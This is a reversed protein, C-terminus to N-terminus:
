PLSTVPSSTEEPQVLFSLSALAQTLHNELDEVLPELNETQRSLLAAELSQASTFLAAAELIAANGKLTHALRLAQAMDGDKILRRLRTGAEPYKRAFVTLLRQLLRPNDDCRALAAPIDFPPLESPLAPQSADDSPEISVSAPSRNATARVAIEAAQREAEAKQGRTVPMWAVLTRVLANLDIPKTLHDNMGVALSKERDGVMAHATMAIIPIGTHEENSRSLKQAEIERIRSTAEYGDMEPMQVDMLILDFAEETVYQVAERGNVAIKLSIGLGALLERALDRNLANDEVLLVNRGTLTSVDLTESVPQISSHHNKSRQHVNNRTKEDALGFCANFRFTSGKDPVSEVRLTGGMLTVLQKCIPLGLGTGGYNRTTSTDAQWFPDYLMPLKQPDLGIGTDSVTFHLEVTRSTPQVTADDQPAPLNTPGVPDVRISVNGQPTFKVANTALNILIQGLRLRDGVLVLPTQPAVAIDLSLNKEEAKFGIVSRLEEMVDGLHFPTQELEMRGAEIKSFDLIDNIILLLSKAATDAKILYDRVVENLDTRLALQTMGIVANMPTRIEHSMNALFDSKAQTASEALDRARLLEKEVRVKLQAEALLNALIQMSAIQNADWTKRGRVVDFGFFGLLEKQHQIPVTLLSQIEQRIFETKEPEAEAPLANVDPIHIVKGASIQAKWWPLDDTNEVYVDKQESIGPACWEHTNRMTNLDSSFLFVYSRDVQFFSGTKGLMDNIKADLSSADVSIFDTSIDAVLKQFAHQHALDDRAQKGATIDIGSVLVCQREHLTITQLRALIWLRKGLKDRMLWEFTQPGDRVTKHIWQLAESFSYPSPLWFEGNKFEDFSSYGLMAYAHKNADLIEGTAADHIFTSVPSDNFLTKFQVESQRLATNSRRLFINGTFLGVLGIGGILLHMVVLLFRQQDAAALYPTLPVSISIGGISDGLVYGQESHCTLCSSEAVLPRMLRYVSQGDLETVATALKKGREFAQLAETEWPDPANEPRIPKLSTIHGILGYHERSMEHVQRTMYAPNVLTLSTGDTIEVDRDALHALYPNPPTMVTPRVYVGGHMATWRRYAVDKNFAADAESQALNTLSQEVHRWNWVLSLGLLLIWSAGALLMLRQRISNGNISPYTM